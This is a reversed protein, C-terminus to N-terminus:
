SVMGYYVAINKAMEDRDYLHSRYGHIGHGSERWASFDPNTEQTKRFHPPNDDHKGPTLAPSLCNRWPRPSAAPSRRRM